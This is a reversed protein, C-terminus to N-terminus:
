FAPKRKAKSQNQVNLLRPARGSHILSRGASFPWRKWITMLFLPNGWVVLGPTRGSGEQLGAEPNGAADAPWWVTVPLSGSAPPRLLCGPRPEWGRPEGGSVADQGPGPWEPLTHERNPGPLRPPSDGEKAGLHPASQPRSVGAGEQSGGLTGGGAGECGHGWRDGESSRLIGQGVVWWLPM